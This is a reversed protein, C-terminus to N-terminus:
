LCCKKYKKGSGCPCPDNRGVKNNSVIQGNALQKYDSGNGIDLHDDFLFPQKTNFSKKFKKDLKLWEDRFTDFIAPYKGRLRNLASVNEPYDEEFEKLEKNSPYDIFDKYNQDPYAWKFFLKSFHYFVFPSLKNDHAMRDIENNIRQILKLRSRIESLSPNDEFVSLMEIYFLQSDVDTYKEAELYSDNLQEIVMEEIETNGKILEIFKEANKLLSEKKNWKDYNNIITMSTLFLRINDENIEDMTKLKVTLISWLKDFKELQDYVSIYIEVMQDRKEPFRKEMEKAVKLAQGPYEGNDLLTGAKNLLILFHKSMPLLEEIRNFKENFLNLNSQMLALSAQVKLIYLNDAALEAAEEVLPEAYEFQRFHIAMMAEELLKNAKGQYKTNLDYESRKFPDKLTDYAERIRKFEEPNKEPPFARVKELYREKILEDGANSNTGLIRYYNSSEAVKAPDAM